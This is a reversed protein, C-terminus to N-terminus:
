RPRAQSRFDALRAPLASAKAPRGRVPSPTSARLVHNVCMLIQKLEVQVRFGVLKVASASMPTLKNKELYQTDAAPVARALSLDQETKM